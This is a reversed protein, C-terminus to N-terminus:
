WWPVFSSLDAAVTVGVVEVQRSISHKFGVM